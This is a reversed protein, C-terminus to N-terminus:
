KKLQLALSVQSGIEKLEQESLRIFFYGVHKNGLTLLFKKNEHFNDLKVITILHDPHIETIRGKERKPSFPHKLSILDATKL